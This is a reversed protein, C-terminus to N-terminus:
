KGLGFPQQYATYGSDRLRTVMKIAAPLNWSHVIFKVHEYDKPNQKELWRVVEMGSEPNGSHQYELGNLDHELFVDRLRERYNILLDLIEPVNKTWIVHAVDREPMRKHLTAAREPSADLFVIIYDEM